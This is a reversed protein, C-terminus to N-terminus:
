VPVSRRRAPLGPADLNGADLALRRITRQIRMLALASDTRPRGPQDESEDDEEARIHSLMLPAYTASSHQAPPTARKGPGDQLSAMITQVDQHVRDRLVHLLQNEDSSVAGAHEAAIQALKTLDADLAALKTAHRTIPSQSQLLPNNEFAISPLTQEVAAYAVAAKTRATAMADAQSATTMVDVFASVCGEVAEFFRLATVKFRDTIRIPFVFVVVLAAVLAGLFTTFSRDWLLSWESAGLHTIMMVVGINVWFVMLSYSVSSFYITLFLCAIGISVILLTQDPLAIALMVGVASGAVTSAVRLIIRRLSDGASGAILVFATWFVSNAHDVSFVRAVLLALGVALVAQLGLVTTPHLDWKGLARVRSPAIKEGAPKAPAAGAESQAAPDATQAALTRVQGISKAVQVSGSLIRLAAVAWAPLPKSEDSLGNDYVASAYARVRAQAAVGENALSQMNEASGERLAVHLVRLAPNLIARFDDPISALVDRDSAGEVMQALGQEAAYLAIQLQNIRDATWGRPALVGPFQGEIVRRSLKARKLEGEIERVWDALAPLTASDEISTAITEVIDGARHYFAIICHRLSNAPDYPLLLFQWVWLSLVGVIAALLFWAAHDWTVHFGVAFYFAMTLLLALEGARLGFRRAYYSLFMMALLLAFYLWEISGVGGALLVAVCAVSISLGLTLQREKRSPDAIVLASIFCVIVAYLQPLRMRTEGFLASIAFMALWATLSALAARAAHHRRLAGPDSADIWDMLMHWRQAM